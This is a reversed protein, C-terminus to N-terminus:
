LVTYTDWEAGYNIDISRKLDIDMNLRMEMIVQRDTHQTLQQFDTVDKKYTRFDSPSMNYFGEPIKVNKVPKIRAHDTTAVSIGGSAQQLRGLEAQLATIQVQLAATGTAIADENGGGSGNTSM